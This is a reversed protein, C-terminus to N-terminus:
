IELFITFEKVLQIVKLEEPLVTCCGYFLLTLVHNHEPVFYVQLPAFAFLLIELPTAANYM